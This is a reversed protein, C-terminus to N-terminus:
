INTVTVPLSSISNLTSLKEQPHYFIFSNKKFIGGFPVIFVNLLIFDMALQKIFKSIQPTSTFSVTHLATISFTLSTVPVTPNVTLPAPLTFTKSICGATAPIHQEPIFHLDLSLKSGDPPHLFPRSTVATRPLSGSTTLTKKTWLTPRIFEGWRCLLELWYLDYLM